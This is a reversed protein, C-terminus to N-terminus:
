NRWNYDHMDQLAQKIADIEPKYFEYDRWSITELLNNFASYLSMEYDYRQRTRNIWHYYGNALVRSNRKISSKETHPAYSNVVCFRGFHWTKEIKM